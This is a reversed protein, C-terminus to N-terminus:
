AIESCGGAVGFRTGGVGLLVGSDVGAGERVLVRAVVVLRVLFVM